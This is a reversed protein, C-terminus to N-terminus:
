LRLRLSAGHWPNYQLVIPLASAILAQSMAPEVCVTVHLDTLTAAPSECVQIDNSTICSDAACTSM